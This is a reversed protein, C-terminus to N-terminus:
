EEVEIFENGILTIELKEREKTTLTYKKRNYEGPYGLICDYETRDNKNQFIYVCNYGKLFPFQEEIMPLLYKWHYSANKFGRAPKEAISPILWDRGMKKATRLKGRRIWQRVTTDTVNHVEAFQAVRLYDCKVNLLTFEQTSTTESLEGHEDLELENCFYLNLEIGDNKINFDYYWWNDTLEPLQTRELTLKFRECLEMLNNYYNETYQVEENEQINCKIYDSFSNLIDKKTFCHEAKFVELKSKMKDDGYNYEFLVNILNYQM